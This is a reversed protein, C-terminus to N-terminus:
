HTSHAKTSPSKGVVRELFFLELERQITKFLSLKKDLPDVLISYGRVWNGVITDTFLQDGVVIGRRLDLNKSAAYAQLAHPFPKYAKYIGEVSLQECIREIRRQNRNNSVIFVSYGLSQAYQVWNATQLTAERDQVGMLTNDVDLWLSTYGSTALKDLPIDYISTCILNPSLLARVLRRQGSYIM